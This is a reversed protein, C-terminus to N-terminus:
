VRKRVEGVLWNLQHFAVKRELDNTVLEDSIGAAGTSVPSPERKEALEAHEGFAGNQRDPRIATVM